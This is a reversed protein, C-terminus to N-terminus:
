RARRRGSVPEGHRDGRGPRWEGGILIEGTPVLPFDFATM